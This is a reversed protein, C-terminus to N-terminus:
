GSPLMTEEKERDKTYSKQKEQYMLQDALGLVAEFNDGTVAKGWSITVGSNKEDAPFSKRIREAAKEMEYGPCNKLVVLFEDGGMRIVYDNQRISNKIHKVISQLLGDGAIHGYLDNYKKFGNIDGMILYDQSSFNLQSIIGRNYAGTLPDTISQEYARELKKNVERYIELIAFGMGVVSALIGYSILFVGTKGSIISYFLHFITLSFFTWPFIVTLKKLYLVEGTAVLPSILAFIIAFNSFQKLQPHSPQFFFGAVLVLTVWFLLSHLRTKIQLLNETGQLFFFMSLCGCSLWIKRLNLFLSLSGSTPRYIFDLLYMGGLFCSIGISFLAHRMYSDERSLGILGLILGLTFCAGIALIYVDHRLIRLIAFRGIVNERWDLSPPSGIGVDYLGFIELELYNQEGLLSPDFSILHPINWMNATGRVMDGIEEIEQGNLFVKVGNGSLRPFFLSDGEKQPFTTSFRIIQSKSLTEYFPLKIERKGNQDQIQWNDVLPHGIPQSLIDFLFYLFFFLAVSLFLYIWRVIKDSVM